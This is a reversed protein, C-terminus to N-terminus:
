YSSLVPPNPPALSSVRAAIDATVATTDKCAFVAVSANAIAVADEAFTTSIATTNIECSITSPPIDDNINADVVIDGEIDVSCGEAEASVKAEM